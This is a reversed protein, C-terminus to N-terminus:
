TAPVADVGYILPIRLPTALAQRQFGDYMDAWSSATNPRPASGGGSLLSGLRYRTVDPGHVGNREAQTMQGLKEDLSMRSLLDAVRVPVPQNPDLYPPDAAFAPTTTLGGLLAAAAVAVMLRKAM